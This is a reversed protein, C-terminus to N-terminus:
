STIASFPMSGPWPIRTPWFSRMGALPEGAAGTTSFADYVGSLGGCSRPGGGFISPLSRMLFPLVTPAAGPSAAALASGAGSGAAGTVGATGAEGDPLAPLAPPAFTAGTTAAAGAAGGAAGAAGAAAGTLDPPTTASALTSGGEALPVEKRQGTRPRMMEAKPEFGFPSFFSPM